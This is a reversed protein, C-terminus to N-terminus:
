NESSPARRLVLVNGAVILLVGTLAFTSWQYDELVTSILLAVIPFLVMAYAARDAGIRGLLTLYCSFAFVSGFIALYLLSGIYRASWDFDIDTGTVSVWLLTIVAGYAMGISNAEIVPVGAKHNYVSAMLFSLGIALTTDDSASLGQVEPWFVLVIGTMGLLAGAVVKPVIASRFLVAGIAINMLLITSFIVAILGSTLNATAAYFVMYNTSFLFLGLLGIGIHQRRNFRLRRGSLTCFTLLVAAAIMFRYAVSVAPAVQGLQLTIAYWTTGWILVTSAYLVLTHNV